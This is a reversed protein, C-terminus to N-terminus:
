LGELVEPFVETWQEQNIHGSDGLGEPARVRRVFKAFGHPDIEGRAFVEVVCDLWSEPCLHENFLYADDGPDNGQGYPYDLIFYLPHSSPEVKLLIYDRKTKDDM